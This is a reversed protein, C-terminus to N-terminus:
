GFSGSRAEVDGCWLCTGGSILCLRMGAGLILKVWGLREARTRSISSSPLAQAVLSREEKVAKNHKRQRRQDGHGLLVAGTVGAPVAPAGTRGHSESNMQNKSRNTNYYVLTDDVIPAGRGVLFPRRDLAGCVAEQTLDNYGQKPRTSMQSKAGSFGVVSLSICVQSNAFTLV